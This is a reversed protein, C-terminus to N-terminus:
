KKGKPDVPFAYKRGDSTVCVRTAVGDVTRTERLQFQWNDLADIDAASQPPTIALMANAAKLASVRQARENDPNDIKAQTFAKAYAAQWQKAAKESLHAPADPVPLKVDDNSPAM